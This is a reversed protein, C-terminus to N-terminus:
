CSFPKFIHGPRDHALDFFGANAYANLIALRLAPSDDIPAPERMLLLVTGRRNRACKDCSCCLLPNEDVCEDM